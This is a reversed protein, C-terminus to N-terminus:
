DQGANYYGFRHKLTLNPRSTVELNITHFADKAQYNPAFSLIYQNRLNTDITQFIQNLQNIDQLYFSRGGTTSALRDLVEKNVNDGEGLGVTYITVQRRWAYDIVDRLAIVGESDYGDSIVVVVRQGSALRLAEDIAIYIGGYLATSTEGTRALQGPISRQLSSKLLQKDATLAQLFQVDRQLTLVAAQDQPKLAQEFFQNAASLATPLQSQMSGSTDILLAYDLPQNNSRQLSLLPVTEGNDLLRLDDVVLDLVPRNSRDFATFPVFVLETKFELVIEKDPTESQTDSKIAPKTEPKTESKTETQVSPKIEASNKTEQTNATAQTLLLLMLM